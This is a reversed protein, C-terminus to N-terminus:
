AARAPGSRGASRSATSRASWRMSAASLARATTFAYAPEAPSSRYGSPYVLSTRGGGRDSGACPGAFTIASGSGLNIQTRSRFVVARSRQRHHHHETVVVVALAM